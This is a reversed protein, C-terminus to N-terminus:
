KHHNHKLQQEKTYLPQSIGLIGSFTYHRCNLTSVPRDLKENVSDFDKYWKGKVKVRDGSIDSLKIEKEEGSAIQEQFIIEDIEEATLELVEDEKRKEDM